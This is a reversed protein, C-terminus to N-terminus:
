TKCKKYKLYAYISPDCEKNYHYNYLDNDM